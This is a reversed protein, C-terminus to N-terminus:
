ENSKHINGNYCADRQAPDQTNLFIGREQATELYVLVDTRTRYTLLARVNEL